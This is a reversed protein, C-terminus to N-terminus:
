PRAVDAASALAHSRAALESIAVTGMGPLSTRLTDHLPDVLRAPLAAAGILAGAASGVTAGNSDTDAGATVALTVSRVFDGAGWLLSAAIIAANPIAHVWGYGNTEAAIRRRAVAWGIGATHLETVLRLVRDLRTGAPVFRNALIVSETPPAGSLALSILGAAWIAAAVGNGTHSVTADLAVMRAARTPDGPAAYAYADARILAGIWERYPNRITATAPPTRGELLNRYAAREATFIKGIELHERWASVVGETTPAGGFRELVLLGIVAYDLDDDRPMGDIRGDTAETWSPKLAPAGAPHPEIAPVYGELPWARGGALYARIAEATWGEVPKGVLCGICRGLWAGHIRDGLQAPVLRRPAVDPIHAAVDEAADIETHPWDSRRPARDLLDLLGPIDADRAPAVDLVARARGELEGLERGSQRCQELEDTLVDHPDLPDYM